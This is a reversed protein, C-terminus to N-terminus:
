QVVKYIFETTTFEEGQRLKRDIDEIPRGLFRSLFFLEELGQKPDTIVEIEGTQRSIKALRM